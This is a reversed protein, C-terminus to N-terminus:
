GYGAPPVLALYGTWVRRWYRQVEELGGRELIEDLHIKIAELAIATHGTLINDVTNHLDVFTSSYGYHRLADSVSRYTGGVGSLEMALNLGLLEPLFHRPYQSICLWFTPVLFASDKFGPWQCFEISGFTPIEVGMDRMLERYINPHNERACGNGVEDLYIRFLRAGVATQCLAVNGFRQLWAGDILVTPCLQVSSDIVEERSPMPLAHPGGYSVSQRDHEKVLWADLASHDYQLFPISRAGKKLNQAARALWLAAYGKAFGLVDPYREVQLLHYYLERTSLQAYAKATRSIRAVSEAPPATWMPLTPSTRPDTVTPARVDVAQPLGLIWDNIVGLEDRRFIGAMPGRAAVAARILASHEPDGARVFRSCALAEVFTAANFTEQKFWEDISRGALPCRGHYGAAFPAKRRVLDIMRAQVEFAGTNVLAHVSTLEAQLLSFAAAFGRGLRVWADDAGGAGNTGPFQAAVASMAMDMAEKQRIAADASLPHCARAFRGSLSPTIAELLPHIGVVANFLIVGLLEPLRMCPFLSLALQFVPMAFMTDAIAGERALAWHGRNTLPISAVNLLAAYASGFGRVPDGAGTCLVYSRLLVSATETHSTGAASVYQLACGEVLGMPACQMLIQTATERSIQGLRETTQVRLASRWQESAYRWRNLQAPSDPIELPPPVAYPEVTALVADIWDAADGLKAYYEDINVLPYYLARAVSTASRGLATPL